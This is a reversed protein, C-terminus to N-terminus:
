SNDEILYYAIVALTWAIFGIGLIWLYTPTFYMVSQDIISRKWGGEMTENVNRYMNWPILNGLSGAVVVALCGILWYGFRKLTLSKERPLVLLKRLENQSECQLVQRGWHGSDAIESSLFTPVKESM